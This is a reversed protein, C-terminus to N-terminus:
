PKSGASSPRPLARKSPDVIEVGCPFGGPDLGGVLMVRGDMLLTAAHFRRWEMLKPGFSWTGASPNYIQTLNREGALDDSHGGALLLRGDPLVTATPLFLPARLEGTAHWEGSEPHFVECRLHDAPPTGRGGHALVEGSALTSLMPDPVTPGRVPTWVGSMPDLVACGPENAPGAETGWALLRGDTLPTWAHIRIPGVREGLPEWVERLPDFLEPLERHAMEGFALVKGDKRRLRGGDEHPTAMAGTPTWGGADPDYIECTTLLEGDRGRGGSALVRGDRLVTLEFERTRPERMSGTRSWRAGLPDYLYCDSLAVCNKSPTAGEGGVVLVRGDELRVSRHSSVEVTVELDAEPSSFGSAPLGGDAEWVELTGGPASHLLARDRGDAGRAFQIWNPSQNLHFTLREMRDGGSMKSGLPFLKIMGDGGTAILSGEWSVALATVASRHAQWGESELAKWSSTDWVRVRGDENGVYLRKGDRGFVVATDV